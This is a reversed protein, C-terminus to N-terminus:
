HVFQRKDSAARVGYPNEASFAHGSAGKAGKKGRAVQQKKRGGKPSFNLDVRPPVSFGFAMAAGQSQLLPCCVTPALPAEFPDPCHLVCRLTWSTSM